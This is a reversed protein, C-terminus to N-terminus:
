LKQNQELITNYKLNAQINDDKLKEKELPYKKPFSNKKLMGLSVGKPRATHPRAAPPQM